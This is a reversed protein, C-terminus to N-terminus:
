TTPATQRRYEPKLVFQLKGPRRVKNCIDDLVERLAADSPRAHEFSAQLERFTPPEERPEALVRFVHAKVDSKDVKKKKKTKKKKKKSTTGEDDDDDDDDDDDPPGGDDDRKVSVIVPGAKPILEDDDLAQVVRATELSDIMRARCDRRYAMGAKPMLGVSAEPEKSVFVGTTDVDVTVDGNAEERQRERKKVRFARMKVEAESTTVDYRRGAETVLEGKAVEGLVSGAEAESWAKALSKPVKLLVVPSLRQSM